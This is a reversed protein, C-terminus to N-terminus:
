RDFNEVKLDDFKTVSDAKTWLGIRGADAFTADDAEFLKKGDFLVAFHEGRVSLKLSHWEGPTVKVDVGAFQTRKGAVIKYLRVNNELANARVVYYNDKDKYRAIVGAAQDVKGSIATFQVSVDVDRALLDDYTCVPFRNSIPDTSRQSLVSMGAPASKDGEVVWSVPGGGGTLDATFAPPTQGHEFKEFDFRM